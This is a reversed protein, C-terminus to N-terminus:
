AFLSSLEPTEGECLLRMARDMIEARDQMFAEFDPRVLENLKTQEADAPYPGASFLKEPPILHSRLRQVVSQDRPAADTRAELYAIPDLRGITRNTRWTILACNLAFNAEIGADKLLKAPFVHHYERKTVNSESLPADDAFDRAGFYNATALIARALSGKSAPWGATQLTRLTPLPHVERNFVPVETDLDSLSDRTPSAAFALLPKADAYARTAAAGEYRGTFFASWLYKRAVHELLGRGDGSKPGRILLAAVVPVAVATPLRAADWIRLRSLIEIANDIGECTVRWEDVLRQTDLGFFGSKNPERDQQLAVTQLITDGVNGFRTIGPSAEVFADIMEQLREGTTSEVEAVVIDYPRLPKANTNMNIFVDLAVSKPTTAPLNLYPLLYHKVTERLPAIVGDKLFRRREQYYEMAAYLKDVDSHESPVPKLYATAADMWQDVEDTNQPDLLRVPILGRRASQEPNETWRPMVLGSKNHWRTYSWIDVQDDDNQPDEDLLPHHVFFTRDAYNDKLARWLATLRQQGDLLHETVKTATEPASALPRSHFQEKDGVELVLTIGLPLDRVITRLMSETRRRDWAEGRQFSPLRLKGAAIDSLWQHLPRDLAKSGTSV